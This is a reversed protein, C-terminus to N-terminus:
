GQYVPGAGLGGDTHPTWESFPADDALYGTQPDIRTNSDHGNFIPPIRNIVTGVEQNIGGAPAPDLRLKGDRVDELMQQADKYALYVPHTNSMAKNKLYTRYAFFAALDLTISSFAEPPEAQPVSGDMISGFYISVRSSASALAYTLQAETLMAATGSGDDTGQLVARLDAVTAYLTTAM